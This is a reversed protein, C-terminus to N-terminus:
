IVEIKGLAYSATRSRAGVEAGKRCDTTRHLVGVGIESHAM